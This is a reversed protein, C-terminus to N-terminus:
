TVAGLRESQVVGAERRGPVPFGHWWIERLAPAAAQRCDGPHWAPFYVARRARRHRSVAPQTAASEQAKSNL